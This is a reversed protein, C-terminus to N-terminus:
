FLISSLFLPHSIRLIYLSPPPFYFASVFFHSYTSFPDLITIRFLFLSSGIRLFLLVTYFRFILVRVFSLFPYNCGAMGNRKGQMKFAESQKCLDMGKWLGGMYNRGTRGLREGVVVRMGDGLVTGARKEGGLWNREGEPM